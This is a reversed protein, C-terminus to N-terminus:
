PVAEFSPPPPDWRFARITALHQKLRTWSVFGYSRATVLQADALSFDALANGARPHFEHVQALMTADRSRIGTRLRKAEKRLHEFSPDDPLPRTPM